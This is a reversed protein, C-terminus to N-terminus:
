NVTKTEAARHHIGPSNNISLLQAGRTQIRTMNCLFPVHLEPFTCSHGEFNPCLCVSLSARLFM